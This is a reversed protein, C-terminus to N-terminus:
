ALGGLTSDFVASKEIVRQFIYHVEASDVDLDMMLPGFLIDFRCQRRDQKFDMGAIM